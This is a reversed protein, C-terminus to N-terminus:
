FIIPLLAGTDAYVPADYLFILKLMNNCLSSELPVLMSFNSAFIRLDTYGAYEDPPYIGGIVVIRIPSIFNFPRM